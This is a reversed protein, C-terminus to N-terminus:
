KIKAEINGYVTKTLGTDYETYVLTTKGKFIENSKGNNCEDITFIKETGSAMPENLTASCGEIDIKNVNIAKGLTNSM